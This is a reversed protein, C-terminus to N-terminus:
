ISNDVMINILSAKGFLLLLENCSDVISHIGESLMASSGSFYSAVLKIIGIATNSILAAYISTRSKAM